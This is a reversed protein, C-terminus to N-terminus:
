GFDVATTNGGCILIGVREQAAPRYAGSLLAAFAAAGGPETAIRLNEWLSKQAAKIAENPVVVSKDIFHGAIEFALTGVSKAGLSDAAVGSVPVDVPKSAELASHLCCSTDPEVAVIKIDNQYWCAIGGILGGGGVAVVLTDLGPVQHQWELGLTGQGALTHKTNYAHVSLAHTRACFADSAALADVYTAGGIHIDAGYSKIREIKVASSIEPVFIHAPRGLKMAAYAVAAGHNGGSAAVVGAAPIDRSLLNNFAGRAKFSGSHQMLELKFNWAGQHGFTGAAIDITPTSRIHPQIREYAETIDSKPIM